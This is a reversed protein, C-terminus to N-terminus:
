SCSVPAAAAALARLTAAPSHFSTAARCLRLTRARPTRAMRQAIVWPAIIGNTLAPTTGTITFTENGGLSGTVPIIDLTGVMTGAASDASGRSARRVTRGWLPCCAARTTSRSLTPVTLGVSTGTGNLELIAGGAVTYGGELTTTLTLFQSTTDVLITGGTQIFNNTPASTSLAPM